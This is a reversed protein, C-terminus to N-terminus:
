FPKSMLRGVEVLYKLFERGLVTLAVRGSTRRVLNRNELYGLWHDFSYGSYFESYKAAVADYLKRADNEPVGDPAHPNLEQLLLLQSGFILYYIDNFILVLQCAALSHTLMKERDQADRIQREDLDKLIQDVQETVLANSVLRLLEDSKAKEAQATTEQPVPVTEIGKTTIGRTRDILRTLPAKLVFIAIAAIFVVALPWMVVSM